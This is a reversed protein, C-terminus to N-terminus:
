DDRSFSFIVPTCVVWQKYYTFPSLALVAYFEKSQFHEACKKVSKTQFFGLGTLRICRGTPRGHVGFGAYTLLRVLASRRSKPRPWTANFRKAAKKTYVIIASSAQERTSLTVKAFCQRRLPCEGAVDPEM